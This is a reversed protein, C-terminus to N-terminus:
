PKIIEMTEADVMVETSANSNIQASVVFVTASSNRDRQINLAEQAASVPDDAEIDITWTVVYHTM